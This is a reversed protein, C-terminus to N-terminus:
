LLDYAREVPAFRTTPTISAARSYTLLAPPNFPTHALFLRFLQRRERATAETTKLRDVLLQAADLADRRAVRAPVDLARGVPLDALARRAVGLDHLYGEVRRGDGVAFQEFDEEGYVVRRGQVTLARVNARLIARGDEVVAGLLALRGLLDDGLHVARMYPVRGDHGLDRREVSEVRGLVVMLVVELLIGRLWVAAGDDRGLDRLEALEE